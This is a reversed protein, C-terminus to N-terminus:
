ASITSGSRRILLQVGTRKLFRGRVEQTSARAKPVSRVVLVCRVRSNDLVAHRFSLHRLTAELQEVGPMLKNGKLEVYVASEIPEAVEFLYDCRKRADNILCGDVEVKRVLKREPNDLVFKSKAERVSISPNRTQESCGEFDM